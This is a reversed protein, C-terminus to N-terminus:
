RPLRKEDANDRIVEGEIIQGDDHIDLPRDRLQRRLERTKWWFYIWVLLGGVALIAFIVLSFTLAALLFAASLALTLIKGPLSQARKPRQGDKGGTQTEDSAM